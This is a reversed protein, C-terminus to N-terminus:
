KSARWLAVLDHEARTIARLTHDLETQLQPDRPDSRLLEQLQEALDQLQELRTYTQNYTQPIM